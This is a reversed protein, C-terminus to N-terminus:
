LWIQTSVKLEEPLCIKDTGSDLRLVLTSLANATLAEEYMAWYIVPCFYSSLCPSNKPHSLLLLIMQADMWLLYKFFFAWSEFVFWLHRLYSPNYQCPHSYFSLLLNINIIFFNGNDNMSCKNQCELIWIDSPKKHLIFWKDVTYHVNQM